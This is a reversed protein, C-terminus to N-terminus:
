QRQRAWRFFLFGSLIVALGLAVFLGILWGPM